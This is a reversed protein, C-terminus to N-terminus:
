NIALKYKEVIIEDLMLATTKKNKLTDFVYAKVKGNFRNINFFVVDSLTEKDMGQDSYITLDNNKDADYVEVRFRNKM